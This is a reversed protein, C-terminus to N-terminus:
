AALAQKVESLLAEGAIPKRLIKGMAEHTPVDFATMYLVNLNMRRMRAMRALAFGNVRNPMVVDTLLLDLPENSNIFDLARRYDPASIVSFGADSLLRETAYRFQEDDDVLLIHPTAQTM